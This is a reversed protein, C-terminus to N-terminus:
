NIGRLILAAMGSILVGVSALMCGEMRNIRQILGIYREACVAEHQSIEAAVSAVTQPKSPM